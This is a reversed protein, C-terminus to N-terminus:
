PSASSDRPLNILSSKEINQVPSGESREPHRIYFAQTVPNSIRSGIEELEKQSFAKDITYADLIWLDKINKFGQLTLKKRRLDARTDFVTTAVEIRVAM